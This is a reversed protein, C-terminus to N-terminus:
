LEKYYIDYSAYIKETIKNYYMDTNKIISRLKYEDVSIKYKNFIYDILEYIDISLNEISCVIYEIFESLSINSKSKTLLKNGGIKIYSFNNSNRILLSTYFWDDFGLQHLNDDFGDQKISHLTFYKINSTFELVELCYNEIDKININNKELVKINLYKNESFEIIKYDNQLEYLLSYYAQITKIGNAFYRTDFIEKNTLLKYFYESATKYTNRVVYNVYINFGISKLTFINFYIKDYNKLQKRYINEMDFITYFDLNFIEKMKNKLNDPISPYDIKYKNPNFYETLNELYNVYVNAAKIGYEEEYIESFDTKSIPELIKLLDLIQKNRDINGFEITPMRGFQICPYEKKNIIKRLLNHLEYEDRIDYEKMLDPYDRFFKLTSYELDNYQNLNLTTLLNTYDNSVINYYRFDKGHKWLTFKAEILINMIRTTLVNFKSDDYLNLEKLIKNYEKIFDDFHINEQASKKIIYEILEQNNRKLVINDIYIYKKRKLRSIAMKFINPMTDDDEVEEIDYKGSEYVIKLYNYTEERENFAFIFDDKTIKYKIFIKVYKDEKYILRKNKIKNLCITEIQRIRERSVNYNDSIKELSSGKLRLLFINYERENLINKIAELISQYNIFYFSNSENILKNDILNNLIENIFFKSNFYKPMNSILDDLSCGDYINSEIIKLIYDYFLEIVSKSIYINKLLIKDKILNNLDTGNEKNLCYKEIICYIIDYLKNYDIKNNGEIFFLLSETTIRFIKIYENEKSKVKNLKINDLISNIENINKDNINKINLLENQKYLVESFYNIGSMKLYFYTRVSLKLDEILIDLYSNNDFHIFIKQNNITNRKNNNEIKLKNIFDIIENLSKQGISKISYIENEPYNLLDNITLIGHNILANISRLSLNLDKIETKDLMECGTYSYIDKNYRKFTIFLALYKLNASYYRM